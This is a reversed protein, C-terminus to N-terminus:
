PRRFLELGRRPLNLWSMARPALRAVLPLHSLVPDDQTPTSSLNTVGDEPRAQDTVCSGGARWVAPRTERVNNDSYPSFINYSKIVSLIGQEDSLLRLFVTLYHDAEPVHAARVVCYDRVYSGHEFVRLRRDSRKQPDRRLRYVRQSEPYLQSSVDLYGDRELQLYLDGLFLRLTNEAREHPQLGDGLDVTDGVRLIDRIGIRSDGARRRDAPSAQVRFHEPPQGVLPFGAQRAIEAAIAYGAWGAVAAQRDRLPTAHRQAFAVVGTADYGTHTRLRLLVFQYNDTGIRAKREEISWQGALGPWQQQTVEVLSDMDQPQAQRLAQSPATYLTRDILREALRTHKCSRSGPAARQKIWAVCDCSLAATHVDACIRYWQNGNSASEIAMILRYDGRALSRSM